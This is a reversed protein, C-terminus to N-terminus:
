GASAILELYAAYREDEDGITLLAVKRAPLPDPHGALRDPVHEVLWARLDPLLADDAPWGIVCDWLLDEIWLEVFDALHADEVGGRPAAAWVDLLPAVAQHFDVSLRWVADLGHVPAPDALTERWWVDLFEEIASAQEPPWERWAVRGLGTSMFGMGSFRGAALLAFVEPLLRRVVAPHDPFHGPVEHFVSGLLDDGLLAGPVALPALGDEGYCYSCGDASVTLGGFVADVRRLAATLAPSAM